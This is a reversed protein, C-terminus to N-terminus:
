TGKAEVAQALLEVLEEGQRRAVRVLRRRGRWGAFALFLCFLLMGAWEYRWASIPSHYFASSVIVTVVVSILLWATVGILTALRPGDDWAQYYHVVSGRDSPVVYGRLANVDYEAESRRLRLEFWGNEVFGFVPRKGAPPRWEFILSTQEDIQKNLRLLCEEASLPSHLQRTPRFLDM